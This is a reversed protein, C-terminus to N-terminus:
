PAVNSGPLLLLLLLLLLWRQTRTYSTYSGARMSVRLRSHGGAARTCAHSLSLRSYDCPKRKGANGEIEYSDRKRSARKAEERAFPAPTDRYIPFPLSPLYPSAHRIKIKASPDGRCLSLSLSLRKAGVFRSMESIAMSITEIDVQKSRM